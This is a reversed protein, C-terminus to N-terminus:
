NIELTNNNKERRLTKPGHVIVLIIDIILIVPNLYFYFIERNALQIPVFFTLLVNIIAHFLTVIFINRNTNNYLFTFMISLLIVFILYFYLFSVPFFWYYILLPLHWLGWVLGLILSSFLANTKSQLRDLAYGRWGVEEFAAAIYFLISWLILYLPNIILLKSLVSEGVILNLFVFIFPIMLFTPILWKKNFKFSWVRKCLIKFGETKETIFTTLYAGICPGIVGGAYFIFLTINSFDFFIPLLWITWSVMFTIFFFLLLNRSENERIESM